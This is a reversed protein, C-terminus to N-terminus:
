GKKLKIIKKEIEKLEKILENKNIFISGSWYKTKKWTAIDKKHQKIDWQHLKLESLM